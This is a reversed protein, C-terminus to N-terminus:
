EDQAKKLYEIARQLAEINDGLKGLGVNCESCLLGRVKGTKHCHDVCIKKPLRRCLACKGEQEEYITQYTEKTLDYSRKLHRAWVKDENKERYRKQYEAAKESNEQNYKKSREIIKERNKQYYRKNWEKTSM